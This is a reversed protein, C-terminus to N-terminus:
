RGFQMLSLLMGIVMACWGPIWKEMILLIPSAILFATATLM